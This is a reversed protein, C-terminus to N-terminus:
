YVKRPPIPERGYLLLKAERWVASLGALLHHGHCALGRVRLGHAVLTSVGWLAESSRSQLDRLRQEAALWFAPELGERCIYFTAFYRYPGLRALSSLARARPELRNHELAVTRGLVELQTKLDICEYEFLEGRAERGPAVIEWAFLGAGKALRIRTEQCFRARAFPILPDPVYELVANEEATFDNVQVTTPSERGPGYLRTAGTTTLQASAGAGVRVNLELHDGGLVGGSVNHLHALASGDPTEFARVVRLPPDQRSAALVTEGSPERREFRLELSARLGGRGASRSPIRDVSSSVHPFVQTSM